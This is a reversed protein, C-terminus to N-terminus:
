IAIGSISQVPSLRGDARSLTIRAAVKNDIAYVDGYPNAVTDPSTPPTISDGEILEAFRYPGAFYNIVPSMQRSLQIILGGDDEDVWDQEDDFEVVVNGGSAAVTLSVTNLSAMQMIVPGDDVRALGARLRPVNSRIYMQQGSLTLPDGLSDTVPVNVAYTLWADRQATTLTQSWATALESIANRVAQQAATNPNTPLGRARAYM